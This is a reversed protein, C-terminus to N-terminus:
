LVEIERKVNLYFEYQELSVNVVAKLIEDVCFLAHKKATIREKNLEEKNMDFISKTVFKNAIENGMKKANMNITLSRSNCANFKISHKLCKDSCIDCREFKYSKMYM